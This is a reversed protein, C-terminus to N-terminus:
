TVEKRRVEKFGHKALLQCVERGSLVKLKVLQSRWMLSM